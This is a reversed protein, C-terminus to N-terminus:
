WELVREWLDNTSTNFQLQNRKSIDVVNSDCYVLGVGLQQDVLDSLDGGTDPIIEFPWEAYGYARKEISLDAQSPDVLWRLVPRYRIRDSLDSWLDVTFTGSALRVWEARIEVGPMLGYGKVPGNPRFWLEPQLVGPIPQTAHDWARGTITVLPM